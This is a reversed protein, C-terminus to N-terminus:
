PWRNAIFDIEDAAFCQCVCETMRARAFNFDFEFVCGILQPKQHTVVTTPDGAVHQLGCAISV